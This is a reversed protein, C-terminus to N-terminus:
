LDFIRYTYAKDELTTKLNDIDGQKDFLGFVTSGSGSMAAYVANNMYMSIKLDRVRPYAKFVVEEFDNVLNDKWQKVPLMITETLNREPKKPTIQSYAWGTNIHEDPYVLVITYGKLSLDIPKLIDGKGRAIAPVNDIFFACDSGLRAALLEIQNCKLKLNFYDNMMKLAFAGDSSGGGLGAGIPINKLLQFNLPPLQFDENLFHYAKLILNDHKNGPIPLGFYDFEMTESPTIELVDCWDIPYFVTEINHFGDPRKGTIYLGLNIKANPYDIM